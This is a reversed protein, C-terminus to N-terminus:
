ISIKRGTLVVLELRGNRRRRGLIWEQGGADFVAYRRRALRADKSALMAEFWADKVAAPDMPNLKAQLKAFFDGQNTAKGIVASMLFPSTTDSFGILLHPGLLQMLMQVTTIESAVNCGGWFTVKCNRDIGLVSTGKRLNASKRHSRVYVKDREFECVVATDHMQELYRDNTLKDNFFHGGFFMWDPSEAFFAKLETRSPRPKRVLGPVRSMGLSECGAIWTRADGRSGLVLMSAGLGAM